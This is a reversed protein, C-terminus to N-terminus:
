ENPLKYYFESKACSEYSDSLLKGDVVVNDYPHECIHIVPKWDPKGVCETFTDTFSIALKQKESRQLRPIYLLFHLYPRGTEGDWMKGGSSSDGSEYENYHIGFIEAEFRTDRDFVATLRESLKKKTEIDLKPLTIELCPM